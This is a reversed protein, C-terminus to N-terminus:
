KVQETLEIPKGPKGNLKEESQPRSDFWAKIVYTALVLFADKPVLDMFFGGIFAACFAYTVVPRVSSRTKELM